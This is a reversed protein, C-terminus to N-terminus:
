DSLAASRTAQAVTRAAGVAFLSTLWTSVRGRFRQDAPLDDGFIARIGLLGSALAAPKGGNHVGSEAAIRAFEDALPDSVKIAHGAEDRGSVYRMWGAVALALMDIRRDANLNDRVTGLLRQPLKQSGDMAIQQTRHPLAPNGFRTILAQQYAAVDVGRPVTLTPVVEDAMLRRMFAVFDPQAAVQYIFEHGALFGLYAFASHSGNLLRLKM